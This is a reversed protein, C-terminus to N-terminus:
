AGDARGDLVELTPSLAARSRPHLVALIRAQEAFDGRDLAAEARARTGPELDDLKYTLAAKVAARAPAQEAIVADLNTAAELADDIERQRQAYARAAVTEALQKLSRIPARVQETARQRLEAENVRPLDDEAM